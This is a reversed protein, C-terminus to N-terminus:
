HTIELTMNNKLSTDQSSINIPVFISCCWLIVTIILIFILMRFAKKGIHLNNILYTFAVMFMGFTILSSVFPLIFKGDIMSIGTIATPIITFTLFLGIITGLLNKLSEEINQNKLTAEDTKTNLINIKEEVDAAEKRLSLKQYEFCLVSFNKYLNTCFKPTSYCENIVSETDKLITGIEDLDVFEEQNLRDQLLELQIDINQQLEKIINDNINETPPINVKPLSLELEKDM